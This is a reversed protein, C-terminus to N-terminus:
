RGITAEAETDFPGVEPVWREKWFDCFYWKGGNRHVPDPGMM